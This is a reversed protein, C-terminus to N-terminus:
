GSIRVRGGDNTGCRRPRISASPVSRAYASAWPATVAIRGGDIDVAWGFRAEAEGDPPVLKTQTWRDGTHEFVYVAGSKTGHTTDGTAGVVVRNGAVAVSRGFRLEPAPDDPQLAWRAAVRQGLSVSVGFALQGVILCVVFTSLRRPAARLVRLPPSSVLMHPNRYPALM